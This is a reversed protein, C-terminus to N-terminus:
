SNLLKVAFYRLFFGTTLNQVSRLMCFVDELIQDKCENGSEIVVYGVIISLYCRPLASIAQQIAEYFEKGSRGRKLEQKFYSILINSNDIVAEFLESYYKPELVNIKLEIFLLYSLKLVSKTDNREMSNQLQKTIHKIKNILSEFKESKSEM